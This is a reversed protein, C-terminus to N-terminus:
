RQRQGDGRLRVSFQERSHIFAARYQLDANVTFAIKLADLQLLERRLSTFLEIGLPMRNSQYSSVRWPETVLMLSAVREILFVKAPAVQPYYTTDANLQQAFPDAGREAIDFLVECKELWRRWFRPKAVFFNCFVTNRSDTILDDVSVGPAIRAVAQKVVQLFGRHCYAGQEFINLFCASQDFYPCFLVVDVDPSQADIFRHVAEASLGTKTRFRPSFFGYLDSEVLSERALFQRIPWYERWDPRPNATNDLGTFGADLQTQTARSYFIQHIHATM